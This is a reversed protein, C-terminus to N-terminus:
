DEPDRKPPEVPREREAPPDPETPPEVRREPAADTKPTAEAPPTAGSSPTPESSPPAPPSTSPVTSASGPAAPPAPPPSASSSAVPPPAAPPSAPPPSTLPSAPITWDPGFESLFEVSYLRFVAYLPLLLVVNVYPIALVFPITCCSLPIAVVYALALAILAMLVIVAYVLFEFPNQRLLQLFKGWAEIAGSQDRYMLPVVFSELFLLALAFLLGLVLGILAAAAITAAGLPQMLEGPRNMMHGFGAMSGVLGGFVVFLAVLFGLRWLFLSNGVGAFRKWPEVVAARGHLMNDLFVFKGRSSVWLLAVGIAISFIAFPFAWWTWVPGAVLDTFGDLPRDSYYDLRLPSRTRWHIGSTGGGGLVALFAAFGIVLWREIDFPDLLLKRTREWARELPTIFAASM